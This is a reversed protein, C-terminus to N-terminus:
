IDLLISEVSLRYKELQDLYLQIMKKDADAKNSGTISVAIPYAAIAPIVTSVARVVTSAGMFHSILFGATAGGVPMIYKLSGGGQPANGGEERFSIDKVLVTRILAGKEPYKAEYQDLWRGGEQQRSDWFEVEDALMLKMMPYTLKQKAMTNLMQGRLRTIFKNWYQEFREKDTNDM